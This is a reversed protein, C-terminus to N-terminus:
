RAGEGPGGGKMLNEPAGNIEGLGGDHPELSAGATAAWTTRCTHGQTYGGQGVGARRGPSTLANCLSM